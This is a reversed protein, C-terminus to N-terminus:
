FLWLYIVAAIMGLLFSPVFPIGEKILVKKVKGQKYLLILHEIQEKSVGLDKPSAIVKKAIIIDEVIWDGETLESPKVFKQMCVKEVSKIYLFLYFSAVIILGLISIMGRTIADKAFMAAILISLALILVVWKCIVVKREKLRNLFDEKFRNYNKVSVFISWVIGYISGILMTFALFYFLLPLNHLPDSFWSGITKSIPLGVPFGIVAGVGMLVKSDGGGWQATYFM